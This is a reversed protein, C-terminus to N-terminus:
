WLQFFFMFCFMLFLLLFLFLPNQFMSYIGGFKEYIDVRRKTAATKGDCAEAHKLGGGTVYNAMHGEATKTVMGLLFAKNGSAKVLYVCIKMMNASVLLKRQEVSDEHLWGPPFQAALDRVSKLSEVPITQRYPLYLTSILAFAACVSQLRPDEQLLKEKQKRAPNQATRRQHVCRGERIFKRYVENAVGFAIKMQNHLEAGVPPMNERLAHFAEDIFESLSQGPFCYTKLLSNIKPWLEDQSLCQAELEAFLEGPLPTFPSGTLEM